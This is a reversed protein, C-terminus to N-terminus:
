KILKFNLMIDFKFTLNQVRSAIKAEDSQYKKHGTNYGSEVKIKLIPSSVEIGGSVVTTGMFRTPM